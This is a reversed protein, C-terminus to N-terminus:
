EEKVKQFIQVQLPTTQDLHMDRQPYAFVIGSDQFLSEMRFRIESETIKREMMSRMRIWFHVEFQLASEGFDTFLVVPEPNKLVKEQEEVAKRMLGAVKQPPSGYRVGAKINIRVLDDSLHMNVVKKELFDSNPIIVHINDFSRITTSRAGIREVAGQSTDIQVMDGIKIPREILLILGSIFNKLINQSGFGIGLAFAGGLVTFLTLPVNVMDLILLTLLFVLLYFTLTQLGAAVGAELGIRPFVRTGILRSFRKALRIGLILLVIVVIFKRVTIPQDDITTIEFNWVKLVQSWLIEGRQGLSLHSIKPELEQLFKQYFQQSRYISAMYNQAADASKNLQSQSALLWKKSEPDPEESRSLKESIENLEKRLEPFRLVTLQQKRVLSELAQQAEIKWDKVQSKELAQNYIQFRRKWFEEMESLNQLQESLSKIQNQYTQKELLHFKIEELVSEPLSESSTPPAERGKEANELGARAINLDKQLEKKEEQIQGLRENLEKENLKVERSLSNIKQTLLDRNAEATQISIKENELELQRLTVRAQSLSSKYQAKELDRDLIQGSPSEGTSGLSEKIRRREKENQDFETKAEDLAEQLTKLTGKSSEVKRTESFLQGQLPDLYSFTKQEAEFGGTAKWSHLDKFIQAKNQSLSEKQNLLELSQEYYLNLTKLNDTKEHLFASQEPFDSSGSAGLLKETEELSIKNQNKKELIQDKLSSEPAAPPEPKLVQLLNSQAAVPRPGLTLFLLFLFTSFSLCSRKALMRPM